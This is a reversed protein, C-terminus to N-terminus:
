RSYEKFEVKISSPKLTQQQQVITFSELIKELLNFEDDDDNDAQGPQKSPDKLLINTDVVVCYRNKMLKSNNHTHDTVM